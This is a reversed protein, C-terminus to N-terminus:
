NVRVCCTTHPSYVCAIGDVVGSERVVEIVEETIDRVSLGGSTRLQTEQQFVKVTRV